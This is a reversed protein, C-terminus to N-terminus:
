QRYIRVTGAASHARMLYLGRGLIVERCEGAGPGERSRAPWESEVRAGCAAVRVPGDPVGLIITGTDTEATVPRAWKAAAPNLRITGSGSRANVPRTSSLSIDGSASTAAVPNGIRRAVIRGVETELTLHMGPGAYVVADVRPCDGALVELAPGRAGDLVRVAPEDRRCQGVLELGLFGESAPRVNLNGFRNTISAGGNPPVRAHWQARRLTPDLNTCAALTLAMAAWPFGRIM